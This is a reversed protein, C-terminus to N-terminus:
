TLYPLNRRAVALGAHVVSKEVGMLEAAEGVALGLRRCLLLSDASAEPLGEYIATVDPDPAAGVRALCRVQHRLEDWVDAAPSPQGLLWDWDERAYALAALVAGAADAKKALRASTYRAYRPLNRESFAVFGLDSM